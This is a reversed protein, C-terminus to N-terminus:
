KRLLKWYAVWYYILSCYSESFKLYFSLWFFPIQRFVNIPYSAIPFVAWVIKGLGTQLTVLVPSLYSVNLFHLAIVFLWTREDSRRKRLRINCSHNNRQCQNGLIIFFQLYNICYQYSSFFDQYFCPLFWWGRYLHLIKQYYMYWFQNIGQCIFTTITFNQM